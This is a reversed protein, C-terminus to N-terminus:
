AFTRAFPCSSGVKAFPQRLQPGASAAPPRKREGGHYLRFCFINVSLHHIVLARMTSVVSPCFCSASVSAKCNTSRLNAAQTLMTPGIRETYRQFCFIEFSGSYRSTILVLASCAACSREAKL